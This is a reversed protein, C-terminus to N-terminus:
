ILVIEHGIDIDVGVGEIIGVVALLQSEADLLGYM